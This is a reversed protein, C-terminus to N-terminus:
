QKKFSNFYEKVYVKTSESIFHCHLTFAENFAALIISTSLLYEENQKKLELVQNRIETLTDNEKQYLERKDDYEEYVSM